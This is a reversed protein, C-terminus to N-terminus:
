PPQTVRLAVGEYRGVRERGEKPTVAVLQRDLAPQQEGIPYL